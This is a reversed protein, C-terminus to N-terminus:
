IRSDSSRAYISTSPKGACHRDLSSYSTFRAQRASGLRTVAWDLRPRARAAEHPLFSQDAGVGSWVDRSRMATKVIGGSCGGITAKPSSDNLGLRLSGEVLGCLCSTFRGFHRIDWSRSMCSARARPLAALICSRAILVTTIAM